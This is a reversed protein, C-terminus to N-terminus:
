RCIYAFGSNEGYVKPYHHVTLLLEKYAGVKEM